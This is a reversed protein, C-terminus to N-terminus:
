NGDLVGSKLVPELERGVIPHQKELNKQLSYWARGLYEHVAYHSGVLAQVSPVFDSAKTTGGPRHVFVTPAPTVQLGAHEFAEVARPLHWAHSVLFIHNIQEDKLLQATYRANERTTRSRVETARVPIQFERELARRMLEGLPPFEGPLSGASVYLPLRTRRQLWAAYRVRQLTFAGIDDSGGFEPARTYRGAGLVVIAQAPHHQLVAGDIAPYPELGSMLWGYVPPLSLLLLGLTSMLVLGRGLLPRRWWIIGLLLLLFLGIPPLLLSKLALYLTL